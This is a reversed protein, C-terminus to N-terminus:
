QKLESLALDFLEKSNIDNEWLGRSALWGYLLGNIEEHSMLSAAAHVSMHEDSAKNFDSQLTLLCQKVERLLLKNM